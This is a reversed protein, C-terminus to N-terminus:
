PMQGLEPSILGMDNGQRSSGGEPAGLETVMSNEAGTKRYQFLVNQQCGSNYLANSVIAFWSLWHQAAEGKAKCGTGNITCVQLLARCLHSGSRERM